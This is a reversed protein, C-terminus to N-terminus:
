ELEKGVSRLNMWVSDELKESESKLPVANQYVTLRDKLNNKKKDDDGHLNQSIADFDVTRPVPVGGYLGGLYRKRLNLNAHIRGDEYATFAQIEKNGESTSTLVFAVKKLVDSELLTTNHTSSILQGNIHPALNELLSKMMVEHVGKDMGDLVVVGGKIASVLLPFVEFLNKTGASEKDFPVAILREGIRKRAYLRYLVCTQGEDSYNTQYFVEKIDSYLAMFFENLSREWNKLLDLQNKSISGKYQPTFTHASMEREENEINVSFDSLGSLITLFDPDLNKEIFDKRKKTREQNLISLFSFRGWYQKLLLHVDKFYDLSKIVSLHISYDDDKMTFLTKEEGKEIVSLQEKVIQNDDFEIFYSGSLKNFRFGFELSMNDVSSITKCTHILHEATARAMSGFIGVDEDDMLSEDRRFRKFPGLDLDQGHAIDQLTLFSSMLNTKGVGNEGYVLAIKRPTGRTSLLNFSLNTLSRYNKLTVSTFM